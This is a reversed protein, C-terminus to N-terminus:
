KIPHHILLYQPGLVDSIYRGINLEIFWPGIEANGSKTDDAGFSVLTKWHKEQARQKRARALQARRGNTLFNALYNEGKRAEYCRFM